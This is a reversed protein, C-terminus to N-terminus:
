YKKMMTSPTKTPMMAPKGSPTPTAEMKKLEDVRMMKVQHEYRTQDLMQQSYRENIERTVKLLILAALAVLIGL